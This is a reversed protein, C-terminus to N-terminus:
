KTTNVYLRDQGKNVIYLDLDGDGDVDMLFVHRTADWDDPLNSSLDTFRDGGLNGLLTKKQEWNGMVIEPLGDLDCDGGAVGQTQLSLAPLASTTADAFKALSERVHFRSQGWNAVLIDKDGDADFDMVLVDRTDDSIAPLYTVTSDGLVSKVADDLYLRNQGSMGLYVDPQKDYNFDAVVVSRVQTPVNSPWWTSTKDLLFAGGNNFIDGGNIFIKSGYCSYYCYDVGFVLDPDGDLDLDAAALGGSHPATDPVNLASVDSFVGKGNNALEIPHSDERTGVIDLDKDKNLDVLILGNLTLDFTIAPMRAATEDVWRGGKGMFVYLRDKAGGQVLDPFGDGDLDGFAAGMGDKVLEPVEAFTNFQFKGFGVRNADQWPKGEAFGNNMLLRDTHYGATWFLDPLLDGDFDGVSMWVLDGRSALSPLATASEDTLLVM